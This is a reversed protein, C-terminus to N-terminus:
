RKMKKLIYIEQEHKLKLDALEQHHERTLNQREEILDSITKRSSLLDQELATNKSSLSKVQKQLKKVERDKSELATHLSALTQQGQRKENELQSHLSNIYSTSQTLESMKSELLKEPIRREKARLADEAARRLTILDQLPTSNLSSIQSM